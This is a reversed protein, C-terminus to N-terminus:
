LSQIVQGIRINVALRRVEADATAPLLARIAADGQEGLAEMEPISLQQPWKKMVEASAVKGAGWQVRGQNVQELARQLSLLLDLQLSAQRDSRSRQGEFRHKIVENLIAGASINGFVFALGVSLFNGWDM